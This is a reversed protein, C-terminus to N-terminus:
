AQLIGEQFDSNQKMFDCELRKSHRYRYTSLYGMIVLNSYEYEFSVYISRRETSDLCCIPLIYNLLKPQNYDKLLVTISVSVSDKSFDFM